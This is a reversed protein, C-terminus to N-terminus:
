PNLDWVPRFKKDPRIKVVAWTTRMVALIVKM